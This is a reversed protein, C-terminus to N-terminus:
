DLTNVTEASPLLGTLSYFQHFIALSIMPTSVLLGLVPLASLLSVLFLIAYFVFFSFWRPRTFKYSLVIADWAKQKFFFIFYPAFVISISLFFVIPTYLAVAIKTPWTFTETTNATNTVVDKGVELLVVMIFLPIMMLLFGLLIYVLLLLLEKMQNFGDFFHVFGAEQQMKKFYYSAIGLGLPLGLGLLIFGKIVPIQYAIVNIIMGLITFAIYMWPDKLFEEWAFRLSSKTPVYNPTAAAALLQNDMFLYQLLPQSVFNCTFVPEKGKWNHFTFFLIFNAKQLGHWANM